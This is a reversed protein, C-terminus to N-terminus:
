SSEQIAKTLKPVVEFLDGCIGYDAAKFFPAEPDNNIVVITKSNNVGALHQIAGSIGIAIYLNPKISMGTQGVHEHHPRWDSDAVPRSCATAAGLTKALEEVIGWNDASKMGRGASVVLSADSLSVDADQSIREVLKSNPSRSEIQLESPSVPSEGVKYDSGSGSVSLVATPSNFVFNSRAKGSYSNRSFTVGDTTTSFSIVDSITDADLRVALRGLLAKGRSNHPLLVYQSNLEKAVSSILDADAKSDHHHNERSILIAKEVEADLVEKPFQEGIHVLHCILGLNSSLDQGFAITEKEIRSVSSEPSSIYVLVSM